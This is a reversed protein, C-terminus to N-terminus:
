RTTMETDGWSPDLNAHVASIGAAIALAALLLTARPMEDNARRRRSHAIVHFRFKPNAVEYIILKERSNNM